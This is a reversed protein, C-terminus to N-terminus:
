QRIIQWLMLYRAFMLSYRSAGLSPVVPIGKSSFHKHMKNAVARNLDYIEAPTRPIQRDNDHRPPHKTKTRAANVIASEGRMIEQGKPSKLLPGQNM